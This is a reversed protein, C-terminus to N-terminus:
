KGPIFIMRTLRAESNTNACVIFKLYDDLMGIKPVVINWVDCFNQFLGFLHFHHRVRSLRDSAINFDRYAFIILIKADTKDV